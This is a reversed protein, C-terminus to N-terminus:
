GRRVRLCWAASTPNARRRGAPAAADQLVQVPVLAASRRDAVERRALECRRFYFAPERLEHERCFARVTLGSQGQRRVM